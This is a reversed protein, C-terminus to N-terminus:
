YGSGRFKPSVTGFTLSFGDIDLIMRGIISFATSRSSAIGINVGGAM